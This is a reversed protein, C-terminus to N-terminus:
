EPCLEPPDCSDYFCRHDCRGDNCLFWLPCCGDRSCTYRVGGDDLNCCAGKCCVSGYGCDSGCCGDAPVCSGDDCRKEGSCCKGDCSWAGHMCTATDCRGCQPRDEECCGSGSVCAGNACKKQGPCCDSEGVCAYGTSSEPDPCHKEGACCYGRHVCVGDDCPRIETATCVGNQCYSCTAGSGLCPVGALDPDPVCAGDRCMQCETCHQCGPPLPPVEKPKHHHRSKHKKHGKGAAQLHKPQKRDANPKHRKKAEADEGPGLRAALGTLVGGALVRLIARRPEPGGAVARILADFNEHDM